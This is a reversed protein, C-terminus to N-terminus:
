TLSSNPNLEIARKLHEEAVPWNWEYWSYALGLMSHAEDNEPDFEFAKEAADKLKPIAVKPPLVKLSAGGILCYIVSLGAYAPAYAPDLKIAKDFYEQSKTIDEETFKYWHYRALLYLNHV